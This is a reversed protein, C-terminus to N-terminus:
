RTSRCTAACWATTSSSPRPARRDVLKEALARTAALRREVEPDQMAVRIAEPDLGSEVLAQDLSADDIKGKSGM